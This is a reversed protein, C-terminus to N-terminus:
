RRESQQASGCGSEGVKYPTGDANREAGAREAECRPCHCTVTVHGGPSLHIDALAHNSPWFKWGRILQQTQGREELDAECFPDEKRLTPKVTDPLGGHEHRDPIQVRKSM